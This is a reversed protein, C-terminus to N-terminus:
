SPRKYFKGAVVKAAASKGRCDIFIDTGPAAHSPPVYALGIAGGVTVGPGGSTVVGIPVHDGDVGGSLARAFVSYGHRAFARADDAIRFGVLQRTVGTAKQARLVEAGLFDGKDLKVAWGLGAELPSTTDDLDNGYLPLKAELRM